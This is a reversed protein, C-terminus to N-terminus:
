NQKWGEISISGGGKAKSKGTILNDKSTFGAINEKAEGAIGIYLNNKNVVVLCQSGVKQLKELTKLVDIKKSIKSIMSAGSLVMDSQTTNFGM